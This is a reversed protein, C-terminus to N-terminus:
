ELKGKIYALGEKLESIDAQIHPIHNNYLKEVKNTLDELIDLKKCIIDMKDGNKLGLKKLIAPLLTDKAFLLSILILILIETFSYEM